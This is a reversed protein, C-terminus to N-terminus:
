GGAIVASALNARRQIDRYLYRTSASFFESFLSEVSVAKAYDQLPIVLPLRPRELGRRKAERYRQLATWM